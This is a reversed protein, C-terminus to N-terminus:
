CERRSRTENRLQIWDEITIAFKVAIKGGRSVVEPEIRRMGLRTYLSIARENAALVEATVASVRYNVFAFKLAMGLGVEAVRSKRPVPQALYLGFQCDRSGEGLGVLNVVGVPIGDHVIVWYKKKADVLVSEFWSAHEDRSIEHDTYMWRRIEPLNRWEFLRELDSFDLDRLEIM